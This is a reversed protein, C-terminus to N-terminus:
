FTTVYTPINDVFTWVWQGSSPLKDSLILMLERAAAYVGEIANNYTSAVDGNFNQLYKNATFSGGTLFKKVRDLGAIRAQAAHVEYKYVYEEDEQAYELYDGARDLLSSFKGSAAYYVSYYTHADVITEYEDKVAAAIDEYIDKCLDTLLGLVPHKIKFALYLLDVALRVKGTAMDYRIASNVQKLFELWDPSGDAFIKLVEEAADRVYEYIGTGPEYAIYQLLELNCAFENFNAAALSYREFDSFIESATKTEDIAITLAAKVVDGGKFTVGAVTGAKEGLKAAWEWQFPVKISGHTLTMFLGEASSLLSITKKFQGLRVNLAALRTQAGDLKDGAEKFSDMAETFDKRVSLVDVVKELADNRVAWQATEGAKAAVNIAKYNEGLINTIAISVNWGARSAKQISEIEDDYLAASTYKGSGLDKGLSIVEKAIGLLNAMCDSADKAYRMVTAATEVWRNKELGPETTYKYFYAMLTEKARKTRKVQFNLGLYKVKSLDLYGPANNDNYYPYDNFIRDIYNEQASAYVSANVDSNVKKTYKFPDTHMIMMETYDNYGDMDSDYLMPNSKMVVYPQGNSSNTRIEIEEGNKLGDEDWDDTETGFIDTVGCLLASGNVRLQGSNLLETYYDSIGDNNSDTVMDVTNSEIEGFVVDLSLADGVSMGAAARYYQGGTGSALEILRAAEANGMGISYIVIGNNKATEIIEEYTHESYQNHMGDTLFIINKYSATSSTILTSIGDYLGDLINTAWGTYRITDFADTLTAKDSTLVLLVESTTAFQVIAARDKGDRLKDVFNKSLEVATYNPDNNLMSTSYDIVFVVDMNADNSVTASAPPRIDNSWIADFYAKNILM